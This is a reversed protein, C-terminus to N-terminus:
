LKKEKGYIIYLFVKNYILIILFSLVIVILSSLLLNSVVTMVTKSTSIKYFYYNDYEDSEFFTSPGLFYIKEYDVNISDTWLCKINNEKIYNSFVELSVNNTGYIDRIFLTKIGTKNMLLEINDALNNSCYFEKPDIASSFSDGNYNPPSPEYSSLVEGPKKLEAITILNNPIRENLSEIKEYRIKYGFGEFFIFYLLWAILIFFIVKLLRHWWKNKLDIDKRLIKM